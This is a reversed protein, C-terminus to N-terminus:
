GNLYKLGPTLDLTYRLRPWAKNVFDRFTAIIAVSSFTIKAATAILVVPNELPSSLDASSFVRYTVTTPGGADMAARIAQVAEGTVGDLQFTLDERGQIGRKPLSMGIGAGMFTVTEETELTAELDQYGQVFRFPESFADNGVELTHIAFADAPASAYIRELAESM